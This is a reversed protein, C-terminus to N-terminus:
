DVMDRRAETTAPHDRPKEANACPLRTTVAAVPIASKAWLLANTLPIPAAVNPVGPSPPCPTPTSPHHQPPQQLSPPLTLKARRRPRKISSM